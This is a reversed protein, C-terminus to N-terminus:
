LYKITMPAVADVIGLLNLFITLVFIFCLIVDTILNKQFSVFSHLLEKLVLNRQM